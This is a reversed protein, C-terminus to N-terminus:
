IKFRFILFNQTVSYGARAASRFLLHRSIHWLLWLFFNLRQNELAYPSSEIM